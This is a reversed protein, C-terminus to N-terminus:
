YGRQFSVTSKLGGNIYESLYGLFTEFVRDRSYISSGAIHPTLIVQEMTWLPSDSDLPAHGNPSVDIAAGALHGRKIANALAKHDVTSGRGANCFYSGQKMATFRAEDFFHNTEPSAPLLNAVFDAAGLVEGIREQSYVTDAFDAESKKGSRNVGIVLCDFAKLLKALQHGIAGYGIIAVTANTLEHNMGCAQWLGNTQQRIYTALKHSLALFMMVCHESIPIPAMNHSRTVIVDKQCFIRADAFADAGASTLHLWKLKQAHILLNPDPRGYIIDVDCLMEPTLDEVFATSIEMSPVVTRIKSFHKESLPYKIDDGGGYGYIILLKM